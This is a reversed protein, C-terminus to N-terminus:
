VLQLYFIGLYLYVLVSPRGRLGSGELGHAIKLYRNCLQELRGWIMPISLLLIYISHGWRMSDFRAHSSDVCWGDM